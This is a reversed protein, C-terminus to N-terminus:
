QEAAADDQQSALYEQQQAFLDNNACIISYECIEPIDMRRYDSHGGDFTMTLIDNEIKIRCMQGDVDLIDDRIEYKADQFYTPMAASPMHYILQGDPTFEYLRFFGVGNIEEYEPGDPDCWVGIIDTKLAEYDPRDSSCAALVTLMLLVAAAAFLKRIKIM